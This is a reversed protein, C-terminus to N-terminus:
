EFEVQFHQRVPQLMNRRLSRSTFLKFAILQLMGKVLGQQTTWEVTWRTGSKDSRFWDRRHSWSSDVAAMYRSHPFDFTCHWTAIDSPRDNRPRIDETYVYLDGEQHIDAEYLDQFKQPDTPGNEGFATVHRYVAEVEAPVVTSVRLRVM